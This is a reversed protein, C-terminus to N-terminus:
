PRAIYMQNSQPVRFDVDLGPDHSLTTSSLGDGVLTIWFVALSARWPTVVPRTRQIRPIERASASIAIATDNQIEQRGLSIRSAAAGMSKHAARGCIAFAVSRPRM